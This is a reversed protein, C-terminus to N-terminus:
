SLEPSNQQTLVRWRWKIGRYIGRLYKDFYNLYLYGGYSIGSTEKNIFLVDAHSFFSFVIYYFGLSKMRKEIADIDQKLSFYELFDHFEVAIQKIKKLSEDNASKFLEIEAGEIDIKLLDVQEINNDTLFRDLTIGEVRVVDEALDQPLEQISGSEENTSTHFQVPANRSHIVYNFKQILNNTPIISFLEPSAEVAYCKCGFRQSIEQSFAGRNAGLDVVISDANILDSCFNHLRLSIIKPVQM